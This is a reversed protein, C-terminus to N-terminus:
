GSKSQWAFDLPNANDFLARARLLLPIQDTRAAQKCWDAACDPVRLAINDVSVRDLSRRSKGRERLFAPDADVCSIGVAPPTDSIHACQRRDARVAKGIRDCRLPRRM